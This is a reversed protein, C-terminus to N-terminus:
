NTVLCLDMEEILAVEDALITGAPLSSLPFSEYDDYVSTKTSPTYEAKFLRVISDDEGLHFVRAFDQASDVTDFVALPGCNENPVSLRGVEYTVNGGKSYGGCVSCYRDGKIRVVKFCFNKETGMTVKGQIRTFM